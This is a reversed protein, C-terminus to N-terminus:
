RARRVEDALRALADTTQKLTADLESQGSYPFLGHGLPCSAQGGIASTGTWHCVPCKIADDLNEFIPMM